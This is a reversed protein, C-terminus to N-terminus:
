EDQTRPPIASSIDLASELTVESITCGSSLDLLVSVVKAIDGVQILHARQAKDVFSAMETDVYAPCLACSKIGLPGIERNMAQSFAVVGAKTASYVSIWPQPLRSVISAMNVVTASSHEAGAECLLPYAERYFLPIQRLNVDLQLDLAKATIHTVYEGIGVGVNNVLVDLRGFSLRHAEVTDKIADEDRVDGAVAEVRYGEAALREAAAQLREARRGTITLSYGRSGLMEAVAYGIGGAAGTVIASRDAGV